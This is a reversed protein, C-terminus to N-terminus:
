FFILEIRSVMTKTERLSSGGSSITDKMGIEEEAHAFRSGLMQKTGVCSTSV